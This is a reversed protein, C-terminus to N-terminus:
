YHCTTSKSVTVAIMEKVTRPLTGGWMTRFGRGAAELYDPRISFIQMINPIPPRPLRGRRPLSRQLDDYAERLRGTARSPAIVQIWAM